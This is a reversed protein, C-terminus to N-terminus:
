GKLKHKALSNPLGKGRAKRLKASPNEVNCTGHGFYKLDMWFCAMLEFDSLYISEPLYALKRVEIQFSKSVEFVAFSAPCRSFPSLRVASAFAFM